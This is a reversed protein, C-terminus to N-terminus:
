PVFLPFIALTLVPRFVDDLSVTNTKLSLVLASVETQMKLETNATEWFSEAKFQYAHPKEGMVGYGWYGM